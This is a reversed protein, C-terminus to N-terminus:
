FFTTYLSLPSFIISAIISSLTSHILFTISPCYFYISADKSVIDIWEINTCSCHYVARLVASMIYIHTITTESYATGQKSSNRHVTISRLEFNDTDGILLIGTTTDIAVDLPRNLTVSTDGAVGTGAVTTIIGTKNAIMRIRNSDTDAIYMSGTRPDFTIGWPVNLSASTAEGGDGNDPTDLECSGTGAVRTYTYKGSSGSIMMVSCVGSNVFYPNGTSPEIAIGAPNATFNDFGATWVTEIIGTSLTIMQVSQQLIDTIYLKSYVASVAISVPYNLLVATALSGSGSYGRVGCQGAVTSIIGTSKTVLRICANWTDAIYFNGQSVDVAIGIPYSLAAKIAPGGDGSYGFTGNGAVTTIIGTSTTIMRICNNVADAMYYLGRSNDVDIGYIVGLVADIAREGDGAYGFDGTGAVTTIIANSTQPKLPVSTPRGSSQATAPLM